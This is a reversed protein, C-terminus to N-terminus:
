SLESFVGALRLLPGSKMAIANAPCVEHCCCCGVCARPNGLHPAQGKGDQALASQPCAAVCRGCRACVKADISPRVWLWRACLRALFGPVALSKWTSPPKLRVPFGPPLGGLIAPHRGAIDALYPVRRAPIGVAECVALDLSLPSASAALFGLQRPTGNSPGEGEMGVVGDAICLQRPLSRELLRLLSAFARQNPYERHRQTKQYGPLLGYLNKTACTFLTMGHTKVKPLNVVLDAELALESVLIEIGDERVTRMGLSELSLLEVGEERCVAEVGTRQWVQRIRVASAPSDGVRLEAAGAARLFRLVARLFEPHTTVAAEPPRDTLLNPKVLIRRGRLPLADAGGLLAALRSVAGDLSAASYDPCSAFAVPPLDAIETSPSM